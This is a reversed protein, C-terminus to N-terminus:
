YELTDFQNIGALVCKFNNKTSLCVLADASCPKLMCYPIPVCSYDHKYRCLQAEACLCDVAHKMIVRGLWIMHSGWAISSAFRLVANNIQDAYCLSQQVTRSLKIHPRGWSRNHPLSIDNIHQLILAHMGSGLASLHSWPCVHTIESYNIAPYFWHIHSHVFPSWYRQFHHEQTHTLM